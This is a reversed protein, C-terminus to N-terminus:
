IGSRETVWFRSGRPSHTTRETRTCNPAPLWPVPALTAVKGGSPSQHPYRMRGREWGGRWAEGKVVEGGSGRGVMGVCLVCCVVLLLLLCLLVVGCCVAVCRLVGCCVAVCRLVGCCVAVCRLVGCCVVVCWLVGCCVVVCWWAVCPARPPLRGSMLM